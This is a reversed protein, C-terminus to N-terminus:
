ALTLFGAQVARRVTARIPDYDADAVPVFCALLGEALVARGEADEHMALFAARLRDRTAAPVARSVVVPPIPGPGIAEVVRLMPGIEPRLRTELELVTSDIGSADVAGDLVLRISQQHSGSAEVAGFYGATEGLRLLHDRPVVYGSNSGGDNYAYRAGRLDAFTRFRSDRRVVV